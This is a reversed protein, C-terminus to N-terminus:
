DSGRRLLVRIDDEHLVTDEHVIDFHDRFYDDLVTSPPAFPPASQPFYPV